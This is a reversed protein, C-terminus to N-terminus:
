QALALAEHALTAEVLEHHEGLLAAFIRRARRFHEIAEDTRGLERLLEGRLDLMRGVPASRAGLSRLAVPLGRDLEVLAAERDGADRRHGALELRAIAVLPHQEGLRETHAEVVRQMTASAGKGDGRRAQVDALQELVDIRAPDEPPLLTAAAELGSEARALDGAHIDITARVVALRGGQRRDPAGMRALAAAARDVHERARVLDGRRADVEVLALLALAVVGDAHAAEATNSAAVLTASALELREADAEFGGRALLLEALVAHLGLERASRELEATGAIARDLEGALAVGQWHALEGRLALVHPLADDAPLQELGTCWGPDSLRRAGDFRQRPDGPRRELVVEVFAGLRVHAEDLCQQRADFGDGDLSACSAQTARSLADAEHDLQTALAAGAGDRALAARQRASWATELEARPDDCREPPTPTGLSGVIALTATFGALPLGLLSRWGARHFSGSQAARPPPAMRVTPRVAPALGTRQRRMVAVLEVFCSACDDLHDKAYARREPGLEDAAYAVLEEDDLCFAPPSRRPGMRTAPKM